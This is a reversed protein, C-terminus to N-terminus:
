IEWRLEESTCFNETTSPKKKELRATKSYIV